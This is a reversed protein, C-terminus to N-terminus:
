KKEKIRKELNRIQAQRLEDPQVPIKKLADLAAEFDGSAMACEAMKEYLWEKQDNDTGANEAVIKYMAYAQVFNRKKFFFDGRIVHLQRFYEQAIGADAFSKLSSELVNLSDTVASDNGLALHTRALWLHLAPDNRSETNRVAELIHVIDLHDRELRGDPIRRFEWILRAAAVAAVTRTRIPLTAQLSYAKLAELMKASPPEDSIREAAAALTNCKQEPTLVAHKQLADLANDGELEIQRIFCRSLLAADNGALAFAAPLNHRGASNLLTNIAELKPDAAFAPIVSVSLLFILLLNMTKM